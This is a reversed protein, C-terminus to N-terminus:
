VSVVLMYLCVYWANCTQINSHVLCVISVYVVKKIGEKVVGM